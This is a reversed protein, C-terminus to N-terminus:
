GTSRPVALCVDPIAPRSPGCTSPAAYEATTNGYLAQLSPMLGHALAYEGFSPRAAVWSAFSPAVAHHFLYGLARRGTRSDCLRGTHEACRLFALLSCYRGAPDPRSHVKM